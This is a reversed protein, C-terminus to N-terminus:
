SFGKATRLISRLREPLSYLHSPLDGPMDFESLLDEIPALEEVDAKLEKILDELAGRMMFDDIPNKGSIECMLDRVIDASGNKADVFVMPFKADSDKDSKPHRVDLYYDQRGNPAVELRISLRTGNGKGYTTFLQKLANEDEPEHEDWRADPEDHSEDPRVFLRFGEKFTISKVNRHITVRPVRVRQVVLENTTDGDCSFEAEELVEIEPPLVPTPSPAPKNTEAPNSKAVRPM